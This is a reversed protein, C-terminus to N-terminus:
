VTAGSVGQSKMDYFYSDIEGKKVYTVVCYLIVCHKALTQPHSEVQKSLCVPIKNSIAYIALVLALGSPLMENLREVHETRWGFERRALGAVMTSDPTAEVFTDVWRGRCCKNMSEGPSTQISCGQSFYGYINWTCAVVSVQMHLLSQIPLMLM